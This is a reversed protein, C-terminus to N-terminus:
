AVAVIRTQYRGLPGLAAYEPPLDGTDEPTAPPAVVSRPVFMDDAELAAHVEANRARANEMGSESGEACIQVPIKLHLTPHGVGPAQASIHLHLTYIRSILCSHFTPLFNKHDPLTIPVIIRAIYFIAGRYGKSATLIGTDNPSSSCDSIDSDRRVIDNDTIPNSAATHKQWQASAVCLSSLCLTEQYLGQNLDYGLSSRLPFNKRPASAYYTSIKIKSALSGLTPPTNHEDAPDFRLVVNATTTIPDNCTSRAGPIVLAKPQASQASLTGLKGKFLGKRITKEDRIRYAIDSPYITVPPQEEFAPKVRVKRTRETLVSLSGEPERIQVIRAKIMYIIKSMEPAFDDMLTGGFGSVDPDGM